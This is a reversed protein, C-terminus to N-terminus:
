FENGVFILQSVISKRLKDSKSALQKGNFALSSIWLANVVRCQNIMQETQNAQTM